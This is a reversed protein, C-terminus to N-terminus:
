SAVSTTIVSASAIRMRVKSGIYVVPIPKFFVLSLEAEASVRTVIMRDNTM